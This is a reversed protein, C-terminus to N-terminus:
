NKQLSLLQKRAEPRVVDVEGHFNSIIERAKERVFEAESEERQKEAWEELGTISFRLHKGFKYGPIDQKKWNQRLWNETVSLFEAAEEPTLFGRTNRSIELM